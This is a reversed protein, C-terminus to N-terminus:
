GTACWAVGTGQTGKDPKQPPRSGPVRGDCREVGGKKDRKGEEDNKLVWRQHEGRPLREGGQGWRRSLTLPGSSGSCSNVTRTVM